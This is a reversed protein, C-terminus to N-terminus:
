NQQEIGFRSRSSIKHVQPARPLNSLSMVMTSVDLKGLLSPPIKVMNSVCWSRESRWFYIFPRLTSKSNHMLKIFQRTRAGPRLHAGAARRLGQTTGAPFQTDLSQEVGLAQLGGLVLIGFPVVRLQQGRLLVKEVSVLCTPWGDIWGDLSDTQTISM